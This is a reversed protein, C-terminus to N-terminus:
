QAGSHASPGGGLGKGRPIAVSHGKLAQITRFPKAQASVIINPNRAYPETYLVYKERDPTKVINLMVDLKKDRLMRLFEGWSPGTIYQVDLGIREALINMYDISLGRPAGHEFYNFPPWDKENHVRIRPHAAVWAKEEPTLALRKTEDIRRPTAGPAQAALRGALALFALITLFRSHPRRSM